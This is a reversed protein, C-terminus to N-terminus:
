YYNFCPVCNSFFFGFCVFFGWLHVLDIFSHITLSHIFFYYFTRGFRHVSTVFLARFHCFPCSPCVSGSVLHSQLLLFEPPSGCILAYIEPSGSIKWCRRQGFSSNRLFGRTLSLILTHPVAILSWPIWTLLPFKSGSPELPKQPNFSLLRRPSQVRGMLFDPRCHNTAPSSACQSSHRGRYSCLNVVFNGPGKKQPSPFSLNQFASSWCM